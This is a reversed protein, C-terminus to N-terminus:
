RHRLRGQAFFIVFFSVVGTVAIVISGTWFALKGTVSVLSILAVMWLAFWALVALGRLRLERRETRMNPM